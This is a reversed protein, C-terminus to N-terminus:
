HREKLSILDGSETLHALKAQIYTLSELNPLLARDISLGDSDPSESALVNVSSASVPSAPPVPSSVDLRFCSFYLMLMSSDIM